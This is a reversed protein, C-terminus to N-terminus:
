ALLALLDVATETRYVERSYTHVGFKSKIEDINDIYAEIWAKIEEDSLESHLCFYIVDGVGEGDLKKIKEGFGMLLDTRKHLRALPGPSDLFITEYVGEREPNFTAARAACKQAENIFKGLNEKTKGYLNLLMVSNCFLPAYYIGTDSKRASERAYEICEDHIKKAQRLVEQYFAKRDARPQSLLGGVFDYIIEIFATKDNRQYFLRETDSYILNAIELLADIDENFLSLAALIREHVQYCAFTKNKEASFKRKVERYTTNIEGFSKSSAIFYKILADPSEGKNMYYQMIFRFNGATSKNGFFVDWHKVFAGEIFRKEAYEYNLKRVEERILDYDPQAYIVTSITLLTLCCIIKKLM